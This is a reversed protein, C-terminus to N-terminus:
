PRYADSRHAVRVVEVVVQQEVIRYVIRYPGRTAKHQGDFPAHLPAGVRRPNEALAGYIFALAVDRVKEPLQGLDRKAARSLRIEYHRM